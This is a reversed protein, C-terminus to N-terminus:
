IRDLDGFNLTEHKMLGNITTLIVGAPLQQDINPVVSEDFNQFVGM